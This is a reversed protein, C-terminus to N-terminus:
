RWSGQPVAVPELIMPLGDRPRAIPALQYPMRYREDVRLRWCRLLPVLVARVQMEAFHLGLCMHAGGGFPVWAFPHRPAGDGGPGFRDPDFREPDRWHAPDRHTFVPFVFVPAHRPIRLGHLECDRVARRLVVPLPPYLRLSEHLVQKHLALTALADPEPGSAAVTAAEERLRAQWDPNKALAYAITTLASTTTDHAAMMLFILHDVIETDTYREGAETELRCMQSFLDSGTGHRRAPIREAIFRELRARSELGRAYRRGLLPVRVLSVTAEVIASFDENVRDMEAQLEVGLFVEAAIELTLRKVAEYFRFNPQRGWREVARQIRPTMRALYSVLAAQRFAPQMLRRHYRHDEGDRLMLGRDFLRSLMTEWGLRASFNQARDRLVFENAEAGLAVIAPEMPLYARSLPGYRAHRRRSFGDPDALLALAQDVVLRRGTGPLHALARADVSPLRPFGLLDTTRDRIPTTM